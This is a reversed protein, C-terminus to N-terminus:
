PSVKAEALANHLHRLISTKRILNLCQTLVSGTLRGLWPPKASCGTFSALNGDKRRHTYNPLQGRQHMQAEGSRGVTPPLPSPTTWSSLSAGEGERLSHAGGKREWNAPLLLDGLPGPLQLHLTIM